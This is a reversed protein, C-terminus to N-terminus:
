GGSPPALGRLRALATSWYAEYKVLWPAFVRSMAEADLEYLQHRGRKTATVLGAARLAMLHKSIGSAVLEPFCAALEGVTLPGREALLDLVRRRTPDALARFLADEDSM